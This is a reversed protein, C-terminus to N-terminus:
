RDGLRVRARSGSEVPRVACPDSGWDRANPRHASLPASAPTPAQAEAVAAACGVMGGGRDDRCCLVGQKGILCLSALPKGASIAERM